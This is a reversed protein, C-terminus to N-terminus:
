KSFTHSVAFSFSDWRMILANIKQAFHTGEHISMSTRSDPDYMKLIGGQKQAWAPEGAAITGVLRAAVAFWRLDQKM